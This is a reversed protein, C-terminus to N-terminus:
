KPLLLRQASESTEFALAALDDPPDKGHLKTFEHGRNLYEDPWEDYGM